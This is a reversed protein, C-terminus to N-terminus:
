CRKMGDSLREYALYQNCWMTDGGMAPLDKAALITVAPPREQFSSDYHWNETPTKDKGKNTLRM